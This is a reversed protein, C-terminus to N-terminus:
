KQIWKKNMTRNRVTLEMFFQGKAGAEIIEIEYKSGTIATKGDNLAVGDRVSTFEYKRFNLDSVFLSSMKGDGHAGTYGM